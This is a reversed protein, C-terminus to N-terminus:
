GASAQTASSVDDYAGLFRDVQTLELLRRVNGQLGVLRVWGGASDATRAASILAGIASSDLFTTRTLDIVVRPSVESVAREVAQSLEQATNLDFEGEAAVVAVGDEVTCSVRPAPVTM